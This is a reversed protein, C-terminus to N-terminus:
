GTERGLREITALAHSVSEHRYGKEEVIALLKKKAGAAHAGGPPLIAACWLVVFIRRMFREGIKRIGAAHACPPGVQAAGCAICEIASMFRNMREARSDADRQRAASRARVGGMPQFLQFLNASFISSLVTRSIASAMTDLPM